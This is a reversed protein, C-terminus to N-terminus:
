TLRVEVLCRLHKMFTLRGTCLPELVFAKIKALSLKKVEALKGADAKLMVQLAEWRGLHGPLHTLTMEGAVNSALYICM